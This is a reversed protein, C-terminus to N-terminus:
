ARTVEISLVEAASEHAIKLKDGSKLDSLAIQKGALTIKTAKSLTYTKETGCGLKMTLKNTQTDASYYEGESYNCAWVSASLTMSLAVAALGTLIRRMTHEKTLFAEGIITFAIM